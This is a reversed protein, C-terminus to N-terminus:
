KGDPLNGAHGTGDGCVPGVILRTFQSWKSRVNPPLEEIEEPKLLIGARNKIM